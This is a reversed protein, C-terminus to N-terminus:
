DGPPLLRQARLFDGIQRAFIENAEANPHPDLEYIWYDRPDTGSFGARTDLHHLGLRRSLVELERDEASPAAPDLELRVVVIPLGARVGIAALSQLPSEGSVATVARESPPRPAPPKQPPDSPIWRMVLWEIFGIRPGVSARDSAAPLLGLRSEVLRAFFSQFFPYTVPGINYPPMNAPLQPPSTALLGPLLVSTVTFLILDPDYALARRELMALIQQAGYAGVAFNVFEFRTPALEESLHEELLSHFSREIEVGTPLSFSAGMVAVRFTGAPKPLPTEGDRLGRSNTRFPVLKLHGDINPKMEFVLGPDASPRTYGTNPLGRVSNVLAPVLGAFGFLYMRASLELASLLLGIGLLVRVLM